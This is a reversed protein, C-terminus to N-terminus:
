LSLRYVSVIQVTVSPYTHVLFKLTNSRYNYHNEEMFHRRINQYITVLTESPGAATMKLTGLCIGDSIARLM